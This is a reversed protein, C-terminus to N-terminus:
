NNKWIAKRRKDLDQWKEIAQNLQQILEPTLIEYKKGQITAQSWERSQKLITVPEPRPKVISQSLPVQSIKNFVIQNCALLYQYEQQIAAIAKHIESQSTEKLMLAYRAWAVHEFFKMYCPDEPQIGARIPGYGHVLKIIDYWKKKSKLQQCQTELYQCCNDSLQMRFIRRASCPASASEGYLWPTVYAGVFFGIFLILITTHLINEIHERFVKRTLFPYVGIFVGGFYLYHFEVFLQDYLNEPIIACCYIGAAICMLTMVIVTIPHQTVMRRICDVYPGWGTKFIEKVKEGPLNKSLSMPEGGELSVAKDIFNVIRDKNENDALASKLANMDDSSLGVKEFQGDALSVDKVGEIPHEPCFMWFIMMGMAYVDWQKREHFPRKNIPSQQNCVKILEPHRFEPTGYSAFGFDALKPAQDVIFVNPPKIDGHIYDEDHIHMLADVLNFTWKVRTDLPIDNIVQDLTGDGYEMPIFLEKHLSFPSGKTKLINPHLDKFMLLADHMLADRESDDKFTMVKLVIIENLSDPIIRRAKCIAVGQTLHRDDMLTLIEYSEGQVGRKVIFNREGNILRQIVSTKGPTKEQGSRTDFFSSTPQPSIDPIDPMDIKLYSLVQSLSAFAFILHGADHDSINAPIDSINGQAIYFLHNLSQTVYAAKETIGGVASLTGDPDVDASFVCDAFGDIGLSAQIIAMLTTLTLSESHSLFAPSKISVSIQRNQLNLYKLDEAIEFCSNLKQQLLDLPRTIRVDGKGELQSGLIKLSGGSKDDSGVWASVKISTAKKSKEDIAVGMAFSSNGQKKPSAALLFLHDDAQSNNPPHWTDTSPRPPHVNLIGLKETTLRTLRAQEEPSLQNFADGHTKPTWSSILQDIESMTKENPM